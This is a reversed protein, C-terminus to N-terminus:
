SVETAITDRVDSYCDVLGTYAEIKSDTAWEEIEHEEVRMARAKQVMYRAAANIEDTTTAYRGEVYCSRGGEAGPEIVGRGGDRRAAEISARVEGPRAARIYEGTKYDMLLPKDKTM